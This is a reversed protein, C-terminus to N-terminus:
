LVSIIVQGSSSNVEEMEVKEKQNRLTHCSKFLLFLAERTACHNLASYQMALQGV